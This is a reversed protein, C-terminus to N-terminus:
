GDTTPLHSSTFSNDLDFYVRFQDIHRRPKKEMLTSIELLRGGCTDGIGAFGVKRRRVSILIEEPLEHSIRYIM